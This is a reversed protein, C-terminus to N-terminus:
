QQKEEQPHAKIFLDIQYAEYLIGGITVFLLLMGWLLSNRLLCITFYVFLCNIFVIFLSLWYIILKVIPNIKTKEM